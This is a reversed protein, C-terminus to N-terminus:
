LDIKFGLTVHAEHYRYFEGLTPRGNVYEVFVRCARGNPRTVLGGQLATDLRWGREQM